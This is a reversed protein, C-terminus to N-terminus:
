TSVWSLLFLCVEAYVARERERERECVCVCVCVSLFLPVIEGKVM